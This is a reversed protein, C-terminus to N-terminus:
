PARRVFASLQLSRSVGPRETKLRRRKIRSSGAEEREGPAEKETIGPRRKGVASRSKEKRERDKEAMDFNLVM